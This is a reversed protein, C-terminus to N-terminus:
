YAIYHNMGARRLLAVQCIYRIRPQKTNDVPNSIICLSVMPMRSDDRIDYISYEYFFSERALKSFTAWLSISLAALLEIDRGFFISM